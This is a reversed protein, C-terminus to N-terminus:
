GHEKPEMSKPDIAILPHVAIETMKVMAEQADAIRKLSIAISTLTFDRDISAIGPECGAIAARVLDDYDSM